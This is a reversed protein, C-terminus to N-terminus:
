SRRLPGDVIDADSPQDAERQGLSRSLGVSAWFDDPLDQRRTLRDLVAQVQHLNQDTSSNSFAFSVTPIPPQTSMTSQLEPARRVTGLSRAMAGQLDVARRLSELQRVARYRRLLPNQSVESESDSESETASPPFDCPNLYEPYPDLVIEMTSPGSPISNSVTRLATASSRMADSASANPGPASASNFSTDASPLSTDPTITTLLTEWADNAHDDDPSLSRQRDGLGDSLSDQNLRNADNISRQGVRRLSPFAFPASLDPGLSESPPFLSMEHLRRAQSASGHYAAAPAFRPTFHPHDQDQRSNTDVGPSAIRQTDSLISSRPIRLRQGPRGHRLADSLLRQGAENRSSDLLGATLDFPDEATASNSLPSRVHGQISSSERERARDVEEALILARPIIPSRGHRQLSSSDREREREIEETLTRPSITRLTANRLVSGYRSPRRVSAQRRIASRAAACSDKIASSRTDETPSPERFMPIGM